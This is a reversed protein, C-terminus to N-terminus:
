LIDLIEKFNNIEKVLEPIHGCSESSTGINFWISKIGLNAAGQIDKKYSDGIMIVDKAQLKLKHLALLFIAPHPKESGAEESCVMHTVYKGLQFKEVKRHQIHATLDTVFCLKFRKAAQALFETVGDYLIMSDLFADWYTNYLKLSWQFPNLGLNECLTQFYLLRNHSSASNPLGIQISKRASEYEKAFNNIGIHKKCFQDAIKMAQNHCLSYDYLTNDIDLLLGKFSM